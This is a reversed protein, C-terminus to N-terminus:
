PEGGALLTALDVLRVGFGDWGGQRLVYRAALSRRLSTCAVISAGSSRAAGLLALAAERSGPGHVRRVPRRPPKWSVPRMGAARLLRGAARRLAPDPPDDYVVVAPAGAPARPPEQQMEDLFTALHVIEIGPSGGAAEIQSALAHRAEGCITVVVRAGTREVAEVNLAALRGYAEREGAAVLDLGCSREDDLVVPVIGNLNMLRVAARLGDALAPEVDGSALADLFPLCGSHLLVEGRDVVRLGHVLPRRAPTTEPRALLREVDLM